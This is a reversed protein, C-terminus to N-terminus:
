QRGNAVARHASESKKPRGPGRRTLLSSSQPVPISSAHNPAGLSDIYAALETLKVLRQRGQTVTPVPFTGSLLKNRATQEAMGIARAADTMRVLARGPFVSTLITLATTIM